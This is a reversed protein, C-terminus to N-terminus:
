LRVSFGHKRTSSWAGIIANSDSSASFSKESESAVQTWLHINDHNTQYEGTSAIVYDTYSYSFPFNFMKAGTNTSRITTEGSEIFHYAERFLYACPSLLAIAYCVPHGYKKSDTNQLFVDQYFYIGFSDISSNQKSIWLNSDVDRNVFAGSSGRVTESLPM